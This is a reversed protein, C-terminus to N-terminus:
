WREATHQAETDADDFSRSADTGSGAVTGSVTGVGRVLDSLQSTALDVQAHYTRGYSDGGGAEINYANVKDISTRLSDSLEAITDFESFRRPLDDTVELDPM